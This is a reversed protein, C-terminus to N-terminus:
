MQGWTKNPMQSTRQTDENIYGEHNTTNPYTKPIQKLIMDAVNM